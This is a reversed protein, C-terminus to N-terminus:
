EHFYIRKVRQSVNTLIEYPITELLGAMETVPYEQGFVLVEAGEKTSIDTLDLMCMDMCVNGVIPAFMGNVLMKGRGNGLRRNLGDAYGIGVIGIVMDKEAFVKRGYGISETAKINKIQSITTKLTAVTQMQRQENPGAAIGHLGIGLRVMDFRAEPFRIIGASNLIHRIVTHKFHQTIQDSMAAFKEIQLRTFGDHPQEDSAALHSFVSVMKLFRNNKIRVILQSVEDEEFGLRHM